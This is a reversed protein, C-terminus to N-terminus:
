LFFEKINSEEWRSSIEGMTECGVTKPAQEPSEDGMLLETFRRFFANDIDSIIKVSNLETTVIREECLSDINLSM